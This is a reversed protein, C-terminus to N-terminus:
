LEFYGLYLEYVVHLELLFCVELEDDLKKNRKAYELNKRGNEGHLVLQIIQIYKNRSSFLM